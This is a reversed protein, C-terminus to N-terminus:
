ARRRKWWGLRKSQSTLWEGRSWEILRPQMVSWRGYLVGMVRRYAAGRKPHRAKM